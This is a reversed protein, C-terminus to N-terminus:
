KGFGKSTLKKKDFLHQKMEKLQQKLYIVEENTYLHEKKLASKILKIITQEM